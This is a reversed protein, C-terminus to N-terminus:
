ILEGKMKELYELFLSLGARKADDLYFQINNAYYYQLDYDPFVTQAAITDMHQIGLANAEDFNEIFEKSFQKESIWAAFIFPLGTFVKWATALDYVYDFHQLQELARDGIIVAAVNGEIKDIFDIPASLYTVNKKYHYKMLIQALRISTKSQYDLYITTVEEIPVKSFICVSAVTEDAAIGYNGIISANPMQMFTAVPVLGIDIKGEILAQSVAAPYAEMIELSHAIPHHQIGYILPKANLYNVIGVKVKNTEM